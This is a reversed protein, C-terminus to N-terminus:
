WDNMVGCPGHQPTRTKGIGKTHRCDGIDLVDAQVRLSDGPFFWFQLHYKQKAPDLPPLLPAIAVKRSHDAIRSERWSVIVTDPLRDPYAIWISSTGFGGWTMLSSRNTKEIGPWIGGDVKSHATLDTYTRHGACGSLWFAVLGLAPLNKM